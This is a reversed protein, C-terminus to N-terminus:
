LNDVITIDHIVLEAVFLYTSIQVLENNNLKVTTKTSRHATLTGLTSNSNTIVQGKQIQDDSLQLYTILMNEKMEILKFLTEILVDVHREIGVHWEDEHVREVGVFLGVFDDVLVVVDLDLDVREILRPIRTDITLSEQGDSSRSSEVGIQVAPIRRAVTVQVLREVVRTQKFHEDVLAFLM